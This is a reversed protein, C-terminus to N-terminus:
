VIAYQVFTQLSITLMYSYFPCGFLIIGRLSKCLNKSVTKARPKAGRNRKVFAMIEAIIEGLLQSAQAIVRLADDYKYTDPPSIV